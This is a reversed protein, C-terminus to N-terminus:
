LWEDRGSSASAVGSVIMAIVAREAAATEARSLTRLPGRSQLEALGHVGSWAAVLAGDFNAAAVIGLRVLEEIVSGLIEFPGQSNPGNRGATAYDLHNPVAFAARFLGNRERAFRLYARSVAALRNKAAEPASPGSAVEDVEERMVEALQEM